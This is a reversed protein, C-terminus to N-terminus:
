RSKSISFFHKQIGSNIRGGVQFSPEYYTSLEKTNVFHISPAWSWLQSVSKKWNALVSCIKCIPFSFGLFPFYHSGLHVCHISWGSPLTILVPSLTTTARGWLDSVTSWWLSTQWLLSRMWWSASFPWPPWAAECPPCTVCSCLTFM